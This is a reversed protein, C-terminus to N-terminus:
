KTVSPVYLNDNLKSLQVLFACLLRYTVNSVIFLVHFFIFLVSLNYDRDFVYPDISGDPNGSPYTTFYRGALAPSVPEVGPHPLDGPPSFPLASWYERQSNWPCFPRALQLGHPRLSDSMVLYAHMSGDGSPLFGSIILM